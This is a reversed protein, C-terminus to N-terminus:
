GGWSGHIFLLPYGMGGDAGPYHEVLLGDVEFSQAGM